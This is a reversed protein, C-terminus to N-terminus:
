TTALKIGQAATYAAAIADHARLARDAHDNRIFLRPKNGDPFVNCNLRGDVLGPHYSYGLTAMLDRRKNLPVRRSANLQDLLNGLATSSVWGGAFGPVGQEVHEMIEQEVGSRSETIAEETSTTTPARQCSTAPNFEDRIPYTHLLESVIAFGYGAGFAAYKGVGRLWDYIDTMYASGMGDRVIDSAQQQATFLMAFRRDNRTKVIANKHNSNLMFNGCIDASVQDVGKGEIELEDGAIMPKLEEMVDTRAGAVYIDEVGYFLNYRMWGNFQNTLKSAKPWHVYRKGIAEAVCRTLLTKGNGEVGQLLPAWQFKAGKYQVCAAMYSLLIERDRTDPLLKAMHNLFPTVDGVQRPVDVPWYVNVRSRGADKIIEGAARNPKFCTSDARPCRYSQNQTFAEFADNTTKDNGAGMAYTYGGYMVRFQEPKFLLGGPVLIRSLDYVYVCGAFSEIQEDISVYVSGTVLTSKAKVGPLPAASTGQEPLAAIPEPLKDTLVDRGNAVAALITRYLYDEREWKPRVLASTLMIRRIRECDKGTWFSLHQALAADVSSADFGREADPYAKSLAPVNCDYLDRFSAKNGFVSAASGSRLARELLTADDIPGHWTDCPADTWEAPAGDVGTQLPFFQGVLSPLLHSLDTAASGVAHTGTLAVFRGEHYFELGLPINKCGHAPPTGSGIIHLGRGSQSVEVAAGPLASILATALPSWTAGDQTLCNDIDLFWFPDSPLFEFGVGYGPGLRAAAAIATAADTHLDTGRAVQGTRHDCPKKDTKGARTASPVLQYVIFQRHAALPALAEPLHLM